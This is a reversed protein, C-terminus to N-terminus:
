RNVRIEDHSFQRRIEVTSFDMFPYKVARKLKLARSKGIFIFSAHTEVKRVSTCGDALTEPRMLFEIVESQDQVIM